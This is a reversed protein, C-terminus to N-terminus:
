PSLIASPAKQYNRKAYLFAQPIIFILLAIGLIFALWSATFKDAFGGLFYATLVYPINKLLNFSSLTTTRYKSDIHENILVSSVSLYATQFFARFALSLGGLILGGVPSVMLTLGILIGLLIGMKEYSIYKRVYETTQSIIACLVYLIAWVIALQAPKFGFEVGLFDNLMELCIVSIAGTGVLLLTQETLFRTKFLEKIGVMTQGVFSKVSVGASEIKPETLFFTFPIGIAYALTNLIFPINSQTSYLLGGIIGAIAPAILSIGTM